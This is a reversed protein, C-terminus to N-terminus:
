QRNEEESATTERKRFAWSVAIGIGYLVVIPVAVISQTVPDGSPTIVAAVIFAILIAWKYQRLLFSTSVIGLRTLLLLIMPTEFTLGIGLLFKLEFSWFYTVTVVNNFGENFSFFFRFTFPLVVFYCFVVGGIFFLSTLLVFPFGWRKERPKLGPAIFAWLQYFVWPSSVVLGAVAAAKMYVFFVETIQTYALTKQGAPLWRMYPAELIKMIPDIFAYCLGFGVAVGVFSKVLRSRLEEFHELFTMERLNGKRRSSM